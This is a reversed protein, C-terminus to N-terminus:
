VNKALNHLISLHAMTGGPRGPVVLLSVPRAQAAAALGDPVARKALRAQRATGTVPRGTQGDINGGKSSIPM